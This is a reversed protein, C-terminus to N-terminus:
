FNLNVGLTYVRSRPNVNNDIGPTLGKQINVEPDYGSYKTLLFLNNGSFYLRLSKVGVRSLWQKPLTYGVTLTSLRLFSGDEVLDTMTVGQTVSMWSYTATSKNLEALAVPDSVLNVGADDVYRFRRDLSMNTSLNSYNRRVASNLYLKNVNLVDFDYMYNFFATFDLNKWNGSIGFGGTMKPNTNGIVTMDDETILDSESDSLKKFKMAGPKFSFNGSSLFSNDPVGPKLTWKRATEDFNFDDVTYFGDNVFGYILGMSKGVEMKYNYTGYWNSLSAKTKWETEGSALKDVKNKNFAVNFNAALNFNKSQIIQGNLSIELGKNSTQGVNTMQRTYGSSNPIISPVLLDKTTNWYLDITATLRNRFFGLDLGINRTVTTEWKLEPDYLYTQDAFQYYNYEENNFGPATSGSYVRYINHWLDDNIRNNGALGYSARLKLDSVFKVSKMWKEKSVRWALSGAPFSGWQRGPAFKTSGDARFTFTAYYKSKYDYLARGFFSATRNPVSKYSTSQYPTGLAFNELAAEATISVPFYRASMYSNDSQSHNIEQGVMLNVNHVKHFLNRYTVTNALRYMEKHTKTRKASPMNNMGASSATSSLAGSFQNDNSYGASIGYESRFQLGKIVDWVLAAKLSILSEDRKRYNEKNEQLPTYKQELSNGDEDLNEGEDDPDLVTGSSIGNTPRFRLATVINTGATGAGDITSTRYSSNTELKLNKFLEHNLKLIINDRKLGSGILQGEDRNHNYSLNFKTKENGGTVTVNYYQSLPHGGLIGDQWDNTDTYKYLDIDDYYGFNKVFGEDSGKRIMQYEYEAMVFEYNGMVPLKRALTRTQIYSNFQVATKGVKPNKTTVIVVGNAGRAGYIATMSAEKLVDISEIDTPPIGSLDDVPFGDVLFLPSNDQTISGGGRVRVSIEADLAGDATTIQVGAMKGALADAVSSSAVKSISEASVSAISGTVDSRRINGYGLVVVEDLMESNEKLTIKALEKSNAKQEISQYGIYSFLIVANDPVNNLTYNGDLDTIVGNATGKVLISAGIIAEGTEDVVKGKITKSTTTKTDSESRQRGVSITNNKRNFFLNTQATIKDLVTSLAAQKVNISIRPVSNVVNQDYFFKLGTQKSLKMFVTEITENQVNLTITKEKQAQANYPTFVMLVFLLFVLFSYMNRKKVKPNSLNDM